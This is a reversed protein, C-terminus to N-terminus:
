VPIDAGPRDFDLDGCLCLYIKLSNDTINYVIDAVVTCLVAKIGLGASNYIHYVLLRGIDSHTNVLSKLCLAAFHNVLIICTCTVLTNHEAKRCVLCGLKHRHGYGKCM